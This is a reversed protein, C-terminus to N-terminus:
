IMLHKTASIHIFCSNHKLLNNNLCKAMELSIKLTLIIKKSHLIRSFVVVAVVVELYVKLSSTRYMVWMSIIIRCMSRCQFRIQSSRVMTLINQQKRERWSLRLGTLSHLCLLIIIFIAQNQNLEAQQSTQKRMKNWSSLCDAKQSYIMWAKKM